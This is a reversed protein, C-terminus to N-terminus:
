AFRDEVFEVGQAALRPRHRRVREVFDEYGLDNRTWLREAIALARPFVKSWVTEQPARGAEALAAGSLVLIAIGLSVGLMLCAAHTRARLWGVRGRAARVSCSRSM